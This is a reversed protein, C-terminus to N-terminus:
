RYSHARKVTFPFSPAVPLVDFLAPPSPLPSPNLLDLPPLPALPGASRPSSVASLASASNRQPRHNIREAAEHLRKTDIDDLTENKGVFEWM